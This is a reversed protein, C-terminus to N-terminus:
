ARRGPARDRWARRACDRPRRRRTLTASLTTISVNWGIGTMRLREGRLTSGRLAVARATGSARQHRRRPRADVRDRTYGLDANKIRLDAMASKRPESRECRLIVPPCISLM